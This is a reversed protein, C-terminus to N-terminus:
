PSCPETLPASTHVVNLDPFAIVRVDVYDERLCGLLIVDAAHPFPISDRRSPFIASTVKQNLLMFGFRPFDRVQYAPWPNASAIGKGRVFFRPYLLRGMEFFAQPQTTFAQIERQSPANSLSLLKQELIPSTQGAYRPPVIGEAIWPLAGILMFASAFFLQTPKLTDPKWEPSQLLILKSINKGFLQSALLLIEMTGLGFYFYPVWDVPLNYRWASFRTIGNSLAYGLSIV